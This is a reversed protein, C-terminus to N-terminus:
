TKPGVPRSKAEISSLGVAANLMYRDKNTMLISAQSEEHVLEPETEDSIVVISGAFSPYRNCRGVARCDKREDSGLGARFFVIENAPGLLNDKDGFVHKDLELFPSISSNLKMMRKMCRFPSSLERTKFISVPVGKHQYAEVFYTLFRLV